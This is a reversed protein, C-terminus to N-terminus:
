HIAPRRDASRALAPESVLDPRATWIRVPAAHWGNHTVLFEDSRVLWGCEDLLAAEVPNAYCIRLPRPAASLSDRIHALVPRMVEASFPNYLFVISADDLGIGADAADANAIELPARRWRLHDANRRAEFVLEQSIDVGRCTAVGWIAFLCLVRGKGCGLDLLVDQSSPHLHRVITCLARYPLPEYRGNRMTPDPPEPPVPVFTRIGLIADLAIDLAYDAHRRGSAGLRILLRKAGALTWSRAM